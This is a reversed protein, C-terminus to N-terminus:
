SCYGKSKSLTLMNEIHKKLFKNNKATVLYPSKAVHLEPSTFTHLGNTNLSITFFIVIVM